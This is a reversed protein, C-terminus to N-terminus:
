RQITVEFDVAFTHLRNEEGLYEPHGDKALIRDIGPVESNDFLLLKIEDATSRATAKSENRVQVQLLLYDIVTSDGCFGDSPRETSVFIGIQNLPRPQLSDAFISNLAPNVNDWVGYGLGALCTAIISAISM